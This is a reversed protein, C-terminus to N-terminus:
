EGGFLRSPRSTRWWTRSARWSQRWSTSRAPSVIWSSGWGVSTPRLSLTWTGAGREQVGRNRCCSGSPRWSETRSSWSDSRFLHSFLWIRGEFSWRKVSKEGHTKRIKNGNLTHYSGLGVPCTPGCHIPHTPVLPDGGRWLKPAELHSFCLLSWPNPTKKNLIYWFM